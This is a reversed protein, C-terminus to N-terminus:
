TVSQFYCPCGYLTSVQLILGSTEINVSFITPTFSSRLLSNTVMEKTSLLQSIAEQDLIRVPIIYTEGSFYIGLFRDLEPKPPLYRAIIGQLTYNNSSGFIVEPSNAVPTLSTEVDLDQADTSNGLVAKLGEIDDLIASWHTFGVYNDIQENRLKDSVVASDQSLPTIARSETCIGTRPPASARSQM